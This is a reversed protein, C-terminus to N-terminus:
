APSLKALPLVFDLKVGKGAVSTIQLKGGLREIRTHLNGLGNGSGNTQAPLGKGNDAITLRLEHELCALSLQVESAGAHRVINNFSEKVLLFLEHRTEAPLSQSPLNAPLDLRIRLETPLFFERTYQAVYNAFHDLSDNRPNLAWVIADMSAVSERATRSIQVLDRSVAAPDTKHRGGMDALLGIRTLSAGLEDHIDQAIRTRERDMANQRRMEDLRRRLRRVTALRVGWVGGGVIAATVGALFWSTQWFYPHVSLEVTAPHTGWAGEPSSAVVKFVHDGAPVSAYTATRSTDGDVWDQDVGSLQYRFRIREPATLCPATFRFELRGAGPRLTEPGIPKGDLLTQELVVQPPKSEPLDGPNFSLAGNATAFWLEDEKTRWSRPDCWSAFSVDPMGDSRGYTVSEVRTARGDMVANLQALPIRFLRHATGGWLSGKGDLLLQRISPDPGGQEISVRATEGDKLRLLGDASTGIWIVGQDAVMCRVADAHGSPKRVIEWRDGRLRAIGGEWDGCWLTGSEDEILRRILGSPLGEATSYSTLTNGELCYVGTNDTVMWLRGRRDELMDMAPERMPKAGAAHRWFRGNKWRWLGRRATSIWVGGAKAPLVCMSDYAPWGDAEGLQHWAGNVWWGLGAEASLIWVRGDSDQCLSRVFENQLGSNLDRVFFRRQRLRLLGAGRTGVWLNDDSDEFLCNISSATPVVQKFEGGAYCYLGQGVTGIWLRHQRDELMCHVRSQGRWPFTAVERQKGDATIYRLRAERAIWLGGDRRPTAVLSATGPLPLERFAGDQFLKLNRLNVLWLRGEVDRLWRSSGAAGGGKIAEAKAPDELSVRGLGGNADSWMMWNTGDSCLGEVRTKLIAENTQVETFTDGHLYVLGIEDPAFWLRGRADAALPDVRTGYRAGTPATYFSKFHLGDFRVVGQHTGLWLFGDATEALSQIENAPLGDGSKWTNVIFETNSDAEERQPGPPTSEPDAVEAGRSSVASLAMGLVVILCGFKVLSNYRRKPMADM